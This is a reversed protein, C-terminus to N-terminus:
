NLIQNEEEEEQIKKKKLDRKRKLEPGYFLRPACYVRTNIKQKTISSNKLLNHHLM